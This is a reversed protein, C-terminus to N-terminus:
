RLGELSKKLDAYEVYSGMLSLMGDGGTTQEQAAIFRRAADVVRELPEKADFYGQAQAWAEYAESKASRMAIEALGHLATMHALDDRLAREGTVPPKGHIAASLVDLASRLTAIVDVDTALGNAQVPAADVAAAVAARIVFNTVGDTGNPFIAELVRKTPSTAPYPGFLTM